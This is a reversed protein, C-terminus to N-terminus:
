SEHNETQDIGPSDTQLASAMGESQGSRTANMGERLAARLRANEAEVARRHAYEEGLLAFLDREAINM